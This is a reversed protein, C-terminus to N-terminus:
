KDVRWQGIEGAGEGDLEGIAAERQILLEKFEQYMAMPINICGGNVWGYKDHPIEVTEIILRKNGIEGDMRISIRHTCNELAQELRYSKRPFRGEKSNQLTENAQM